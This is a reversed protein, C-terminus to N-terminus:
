KLIEIIRRQKAILENRTKLRTRLTSNNISYKKNDAELQEILKKFKDWEFQTGISKAAEMRSIHSKICM